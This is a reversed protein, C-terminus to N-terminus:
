KRKMRGAAALVVVALILFVVTLGVGVASRAIWLKCADWFTM